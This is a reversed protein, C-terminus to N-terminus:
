LSRLFMILQQRETDTLNRFRHEVQQAEGRHRRIADELTLSTLDHMFRAKM